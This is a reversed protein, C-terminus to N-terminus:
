KEKGTPIKDRTADLKRGFTNPIFTRLLVYEKFCNYVCTFVSFNHTQIHSLLYTDLAVSAKKFAYNAKLLNCTLLIFAIFRIRIRTNPYCYFVLIFKLSM